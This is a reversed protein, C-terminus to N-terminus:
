EHNKNNFLIDLYSPMPIIQVYSILISTSKTINKRKKEKFEYCM